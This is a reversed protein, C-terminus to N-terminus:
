PSRGNVAVHEPFEVSSSGRWTRQLGRRRSVSRAVTVGVPVIWGRRHAERFASGMVGTSTTPTTWTRVDDACFERGLEALVKITQLAEAFTDPDGRHAAALGADRATEAASRRYLDLQEASV